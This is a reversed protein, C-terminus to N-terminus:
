DVTHHLTVIAVVVLVAAGLDPSASILDEPHPTLFSLM